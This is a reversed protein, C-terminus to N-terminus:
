DSVKCLFGPLLWDGGAFSALLRFRTKRPAHTVRAAFRLCPARLGRSLAGFDLITSASATLMASPLVESGCHGPKLTGGPDSLPAHPYSPEGPVQSTGDEGSISSHNPFGCHFYGRGQPLPRQDPLSRVVFAYTTNRPSPLPTEPSPLHSTPTGLLLM